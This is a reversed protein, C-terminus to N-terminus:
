SSSSGCLRADCVHRERGAVVVRRADPHEPNLLVNREAPVVASPVSLLPTRREAAWAGGRAALDTPAPTERWTRPLATTEVREVGLDDPAEIRVAVLERPLGGPTHALAELLALSLSSAAYVIRTGAPNWRGAKPDGVLPAEAQEPPLVRWLIVRL